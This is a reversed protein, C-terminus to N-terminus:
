KLTYWFKFTTWRGQDKQGEKSHTQFKVRRYFALPSIAKNM